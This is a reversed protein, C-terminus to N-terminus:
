STELTLCTVTRIIGDVSHIDRNIVDAVVNLDPGSVTAIIDYPGSAREASEVGPLSSIAIAADDMKGVAAEILVYAKTTM